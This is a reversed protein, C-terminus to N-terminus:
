YNAWIKSVKFFTLELIKGAIVDEATVRPDTVKYPLKKLEETIYEILIGIEFTFGFSPM